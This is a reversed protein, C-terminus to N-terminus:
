APGRGRTGEVFGALALEDLCEGDGGAAGSASARIESALRRFEAVRVQCSACESVHRAIPDAAASVDALAFLLLEPESPCTLTM